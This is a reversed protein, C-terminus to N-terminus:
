ENLFTKWKGKEWLNDKFKLQGEWRRSTDLHYFNFKFNKTVKQQGIISTETAFLHVRPFRKGDHNWWSEIQQWGRLSECWKHIHKSACFCFYKDFHFIVKRCIKTHEIEVSHRWVLVILFQFTFFTSLKIDFLHFRIEKSFEADFEWNNSMKANCFCLATFMM